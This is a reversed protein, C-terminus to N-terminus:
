EKFGLTVKEINHDIDDGLQIKNADMKGTSNVNIKNSKLFDFLKHYEEKNISSFTYVSDGRIHM